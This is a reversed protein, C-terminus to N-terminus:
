LTGCTDSLNILHVIVLVPLPFRDDTRLLDAAQPFFEIKAHQLVDELVDRALTGPGRGAQEALRKGEANKKPILVFM